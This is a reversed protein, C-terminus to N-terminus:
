SFVKMIMLALSVIITFEVTAIGVNDQHNIEVDANIHNLVIKSGIFAFAINAIMFCSGYLFFALVNTTIEAPLYHTIQSATKINLAGAILYGSYHISLSLNEYSLTRQMSDGQNAKAYRYERWRALLLFYAQTIFFMIIIILLDDMTNAGSWHYIAIICIANAIISAADVFAGAINKQNIAKNEDFNFLIHHDHIYRGMEMFAVALAAYILAHISDAFLDEFSLGRFVEGAILVFAFISGAYSLGYAFNDLLALEKNLKRGTRYQTIWRNIFFYIFVIVLTILTTKIKLWDSSSLEM